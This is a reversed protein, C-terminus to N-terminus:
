KVGGRYKFPASRKASSVDIKVSGSKMYCHIGKLDGSVSFTRFQMSVQEGKAHVPGLLITILIVFLYSYHM